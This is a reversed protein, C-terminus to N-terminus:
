ISDFWERIMVGLAKYWPKESQVPGDHAQRVREMAAQVRDPTVLWFAKVQEDTLTGCEPHIPHECNWGGHNEYPVSSLNFRKMPKSCGPCLVNTLPKPDFYGAPYPQAMKVTPNLARAETIRIPEWVPISSGGKVLQPNIIWYGDVETDFAFYCRFGPGHSTCKWGPTNPYMEDDTVHELPGYCIPCQLKMRGAAVEERVYSATVPPATAKALGQMMAGAKTHGEHYPWGWAIKPTSTKQSAEDNSPAESQQQNTEVRQTESDQSMPKSDLPGDLTRAHEEEALKIYDVYPPTDHTLDIEIVEWLTHPKPVAVFTGRYWRNDTGLFKWQKV